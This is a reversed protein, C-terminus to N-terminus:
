IHTVLDGSIHTITFIFRNLQNLCPMLVKRLYEEMYKTNKVVEVFM